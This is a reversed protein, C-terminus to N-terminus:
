GATGNGSSQQNLGFVLPKLIKNVVNWRPISLGRLLSPVTECAVWCHCRHRAIHSRTEEARSSRWLEDFSETRVDGLKQDLVLCPYVQGYPDLFFSHVGSHCDLMQTRRLEYEAARAMFYAYPNVLKDMPPESAARDRAVERMTHAAAALESAWGFAVEKNGYYFDSNHAFGALFKIGLAKSLQYTSWLDQYNWPTITFDFGLSIDFERQVTEVTCLVREFAGRVGRMKDHNTGIGDLSISLSLHRPHFRAVLERTRKVTLSPSLGNTPIGIFADPYKQVFLGALDVFDKRLFPEGGTFSIGELHELYQSSLLNEIDQLSLEEQLLGPGRRYKEWIRCMRCRSNCLYTVAYNMWLVRAPTPRKLLLKSGKVAYEKLGTRNM